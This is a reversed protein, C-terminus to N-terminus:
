MINIDYRQRLYSQSYSLPLKTQVPVLGLTKSIIPLGLFGVVILSFESVHSLKTPESSECAVLLVYSDHMRLYM